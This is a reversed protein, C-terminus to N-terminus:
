HECCRAKTYINSLTSALTDLYTPLADYPNSMVDDTLYVYDVFDVNDELFTYDPTSESHVIMSIQKRGIYRPYFSFDRLQQPTPYTSNEWVCCIDFSNFYSEVLGTGPNVYVIVRGGKTKVCDYLENYYAEYGTTSAFEDFHIGDINDSGYLSYWLDIDAKVDAIARKGYLTYVYGLFRCGVAKLQAIGTQFDTNLSTDPGNNVNIICLFDIDPYATKAIIIPTWNYPPGVWVDPYLYLPVIIGTKYQATIPAGGGGEGDGGGVSEDAWAPTGAVM